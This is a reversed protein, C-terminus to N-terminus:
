PVVLNLEIFEVCKIPTVTVDVHLIDTDIDRHMKLDIKPTGQILMAEKHAEIALTLWNFEYKTVPVGLIEHDKLIVPQELKDFVKDITEQVVDQVTSM